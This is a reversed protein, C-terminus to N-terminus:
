LWLVLLHEVVLLQVLLWLVLLQKVVLLQVLLLNYDWPLQVMMLYYDWPLQVLLWLVLQQLFQQYLYIYIHTHIYEKTDGATQKNGAVAAVASKYIIGLIELQKSVGLQQLM